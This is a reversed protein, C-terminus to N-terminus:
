VQVHSTFGDDQKMTGSYYWQLIRQESGDLDVHRRSSAVIFALCEVRLFEIDYISM